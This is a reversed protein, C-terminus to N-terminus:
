GVIRQFSNYHDATYYCSLGARGGCVIRRVGRGHPHGAAGDDPRDVWRARPPVTYEHYYGYPMPPLRHERNGFVIGDKAYPFPGGARILQLTRQAERPLATSAIAPLERASWVAQASAGPVAALLGLVCAAGTLWAALGSRVGDRFRKM